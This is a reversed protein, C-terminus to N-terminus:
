SVELSELELERGQRVVESLQGCRSCEFVWTATQFEADCVECFCVVPVHEVELRAGEASTGRAVVEFAFALAEAEVGALAGIRLKIRHIRHAGRRAAEAISLDVASQMLGVEHM